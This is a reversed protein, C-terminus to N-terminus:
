PLNVDGIKRCDRVLCLVEKAFQRVIGEEMEMNRGKAYCEAASMVVPHYKEPLHEMGWKGGEEKSLYLGDKLFALVRCLNLTIYVPEEMIDQEANEIDEYISDIYHERPVPAFVSDVPEGYLVIGYKRIMTFHAALDKDEGNMNEVYDQPASQYWHLHVPSFHLEFPTPYLFPRCYEKKVVSIELGKEPAKKNFEVIREMFELKQIDSIDEKIIVILDIDSKEPHFCGMAMSGHLYVGVLNAMFIEKCQGAIGDLINQYQM